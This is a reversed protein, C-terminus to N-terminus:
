STRSGRDTGGSEACTRASQTAPSCSFFPWATNSSAIAQSGASSRSSSSRTPPPGNRPLELPARGLEPDRVPDAEVTRELLGLHALQELPASRNTRGLM